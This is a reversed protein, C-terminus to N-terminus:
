PMDMGGSFGTVLQSSVLGTRGVRVVETPRGSGGVRGLRVDKMLVSSGAGMGMLWPVALGGPETLLSEPAGSGVVLFRPPSESSASPDVTGGEPPLLSSLPMTVLEAGAIPLPVRLEGAAAAASPPGVLAVVNVLGKNGSMDSCNLAFNGKPPSNSEAWAESVDLSWCSTSFM